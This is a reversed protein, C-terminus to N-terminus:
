PAKEASPVETKGPSPEGAKKAELGATKDVKKDAAKKKLGIGKLWFDLERKLLRESEEAELEIDVATGPVGHGDQTLKGARRIARKLSGDASLRLVDSESAGMAKKASLLIVWDPKAPATSSSVGPMVVNVTRYRRDSSDAEVREVVKTKLNPDLGSAKLIARPTNEEGLVVVSQIFQELSIGASSRVDRPNKATVGANVDGVLFVMSLVAKLLPRFM